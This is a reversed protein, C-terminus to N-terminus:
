FHTPSARDTGTTMLLHLLLQRSSDTSMIPITDSTVAPMDTHRGAETAVKSMAVAHGFGITLDTVLCMRRKLDIELPIRCYPETGIAMAIDRFPDLCGARSMTVLHGTGGTMLLMRIGGAAFTVTLVWLLTKSHRLGTKDTVGRAIMRMIRDTITLTTMGRMLRQNEIQFSILRLCRDANGTMGLNGVLEFCHRTAVTCLIASGTVCFMSLEADTEITMLRMLFRHLLCIAQEAM